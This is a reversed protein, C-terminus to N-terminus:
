NPADTDAISGLVLRDLTSTGDLQVLSWEKTSKDESQRQLTMDFSGGHNIVPNYIAKNLPIYTQYWIHHVDMDYEPFEM